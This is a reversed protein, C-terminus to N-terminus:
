SVNKEIVKYRAHRKFLFKDSVGRTIAMRIGKRTPAPDYNAEIYSVIDDISSGEREKLGRIATIVKALIPKVSPTAAVAPYPPVNDIIHGNLENIGGVEEPWPSEVNTVKHIRIPEISIQLGAGIHQEDASYPHNGDPNPDLVEVSYRAGHDYAPDGFANSGRNILSAREALRKVKGEVGRHKKNGDSSLVTLNNNVGLGGMNDNLLHGAIYREKGSIYCGVKTMLNPVSGPPRSGYVWENIDGVKATMSTGGRLRHAAGRSEEEVPFRQLVPGLALHGNAIRDYARLQGVTDSQTVIEAPAKPSALFDTSIGEEFDDFEAQGDNSSDYEEPYGDGSDETNSQVKTLAVRQVTGRNAIASYAQLQAIQPSGAVPPATKHSAPEPNRHHTNEQHQNTFM